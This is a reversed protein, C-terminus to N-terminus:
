IKLKKEYKQKRAHHRLIESPMSAGCSAFIDTAHTRSASQRFTCLIQSKLNKKQIKTKECSSMINRFACVQAAQCAFTYCSIGYYAYPLAATIQLVAHRRLVNAFRCPGGNTRYKKYLDMKEQGLGLKKETLFNAYASVGYETEVPHFLITHM